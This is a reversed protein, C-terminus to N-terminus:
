RGLCVLQGLALLAGPLEWVCLWWFPKPVDRRGVGFKGSIDNLILCM